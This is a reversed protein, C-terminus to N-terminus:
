LVSDVANVTAEPSDQWLHSYTNLTETATAHGLRAQVTRVDVGHAILMSAYFHRLRHPRIGCHNVLAEHYTTSTWQNGQRTLFLPTDSPGKSAELVSELARAPLPITRISQPTKLAEWSWPNGRRGAQHTVAITARGPDVSSVKLGCLEGPRLGTSAQLLMMASLVPSASAIAERVREPSPIQVPERVPQSIRVKPLNPYAARYQAYYIKTTAPSLGRARCDALWASMTTDTISDVPKGRLIGLAGSAARKVAATTPKAANVAADALLDELTRKDRPKVSTEDLGRLYDRALNLKPFSKSRERGTNDLYRAVYATRGSKLTTKRIHSM